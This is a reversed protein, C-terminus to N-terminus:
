PSKPFSDAPQQAPDKPNNVPVPSTEAKGTDASEDAPKANESAFKEAAQRHVSALDELGAQTYATALGRHAQLRLSPVPLVKELDSIADTPRNLLLYIQGRTELFYLLQEATGPTIKKDALEIASNILQLSQDLLTQDATEKAIQSKAVALNNLIAASQPMDKAALELEISAVKSDGKLMAITGRIFHALSPSSGEILSERLAVVEPSDERAAALVTDGVAKIVAPHSPAFQSARQILFLRERLTESSTDDPKISQAYLVLCEGLASRLRDDKSLNLGTFLTNVADSYRKLFILIQAQTLRVDARAPEDNVMEDIYRLAQQAFEVARQEQGQSRLLIAIQIARIPQAKQLVQLLPVAELIRKDRILAEARWANIQLDDPFKAYAIETLKVFDDQQEPTWKAAEDTKLENRLLWFAARAENETFALERYQRSAEEKKELLSFVEAQQLRLDINQPEDRLRRKLLLEVVKYDEERYAEVLKRSIMRNRWTKSSSWAVASGTIMLATVIVFPLAWLSGRWRVSMLWNFGFQTCWRFWNLPNLYRKM